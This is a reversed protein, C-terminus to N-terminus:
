NYANERTESIGSEVVLHVFQVLFDLSHFLLREESTVNM